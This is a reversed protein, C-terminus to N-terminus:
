GRRRPEVPGSAKRWEHWGGKLARVRKFGSELLVQAAHISSEDSPCACYTVVERDKPVNKFPAFGLRYKLKRVNVHIAGKIRTDSNAYSEQNRVDIILIPENTNVKTKLEDVTMFDIVLSKKEDRSGSGLSTSALAIIALIVVPCQWISKQTM